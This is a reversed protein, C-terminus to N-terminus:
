LVSCFGKIWLSRCDYEMRIEQLRVSGVAVVAIVAM